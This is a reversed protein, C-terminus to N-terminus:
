HFEVSDPYRLVFRIDDSVRKLKKSLRSPILLYEEEIETRRIIGEFDCHFVSIDQVLWLSQINRVRALQPDIQDILMLVKILVAVPDGDDVRILKVRRVRESM